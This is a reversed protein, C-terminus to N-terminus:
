QLREKRLRADAVARPLVRRILERSLALRFEADAVHDEMAVVSQVAHEALAAATGEDAVRGVFAKTEVAVPHDEAGGLGLALVAIRGDGDLRVQCAAAAIAFDGHRQAIEEFAYGADPAARRWEIAVLLEDPRRATTLAGLFFERAPVRRERRKSRLVVAGDTVVLCLPIEASPDAHAVSGGLTGRNRTQFHGVWPLALALLPVERRLVYSELADAQVLTAGTAVTGGRVDISDLGRIRTVDIVVRPRTIRLNLMPGLTMGGALVAAEERFQALVGAAEAITEPRCYEFAVPKVTEGEKCFYGGGAVPAM